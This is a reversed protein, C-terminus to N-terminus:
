VKLVPLEPIELTAKHDPPAPTALTAKHDPQVQTVLTAKRVLLVLIELRVM